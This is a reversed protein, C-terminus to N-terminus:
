GFRNIIKLNEEGLKKIERTFLSIRNEANLENWFKNAINEANGQLPILIPDGQFTSPPDGDVMYTTLCYGFGPQIIPYRFYHYSTRNFSFDSKCIKGMNIGPESLKILGAIRSTYNPSDSEHKESELSTFFNEGENIKECIRDTHSGNSVVIVGDLDRMANYIIFKQDHNLSSSIAETRLIGNEYKLVRNRSQPSRGMIWYILVWSDDRNKGLVIGRGPYSNLSIHKKFNREAIKNNNKTNTYKLNNTTCQM